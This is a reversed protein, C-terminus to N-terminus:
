YFVNPRYLAVEVYNQNFSYRLYGIKANGFHLLICHLICEMKLVLPCANTSITGVAISKPRTSIPLLGTSFFSTTRLTLEQAM